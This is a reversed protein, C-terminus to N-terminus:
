FAGRLQFHIRIDGKEVAKNDKLASAVDLSFQISKKTAMRLGVGISSIQERDDAGALPKHIRTAAGEAFALAYADKFGRKSLVKLNPSLVEISARTADDALVQSEFYGRVTEAGGVSYQENSVLAQNAFQGAITALLKIGNDFRYAQLLKAEIISFNPDADFRKNEFEATSNGFARPAFKVSSIFTTTGSLSIATANYDISFMTYSIPTVISDAGILAVAEDFSKYDMGFVISHFYKSEGKLSKVWRAGLVTGKGVVSLAGGSSIGTESDSKVAYMALRDGDIGLPMMYSAVLVRVEKTNEPSMQYTLSLSHNKLWLNNYSVNAALRTRTTGISNRGNIELSAHLPAEDKVRLEVAVTGPSRGPRFIPTVRLDPNTSNLVKLQEQVTPLHPVTGEALDPVFERIKKLSFYRAGSIKLRDIKGEIVNLKVIGKSVDQEPIDVLVTPYGNSKYLMQLAVTAANVDDITKNRGLFPYVSREILSKELVKSGSIQFEWISFTLQKETTPQEESHQEEAVDSQKKEPSSANEASFVPHSFTTTLSCILLLRKMTM